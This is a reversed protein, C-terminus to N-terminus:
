RFYAHALQRADDDLDQWRRMHIGNAELEPLLTEALLDTAEALLGRVEVGIKALQVGPTLGDPSEEIGDAAHQEHLASVRIMFFEDLNSFFIAFFKIRELLPWDSRAAEMLVRHNFALWSLERNFYLSHDSIHPKPLLGDSLEPAVVKGSPAPHPAAAPASKSKHSTTETSSAM